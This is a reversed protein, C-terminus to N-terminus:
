CTRQEKLEITLSKVFRANYKFAPSLDPEKITTLKGDQLAVEFGIGLRDIVNQVVSDNTIDGVGLPTFCDIQLLTRNSTVPMIKVVYYSSAPVRKHDDSKSHNPFFVPHDLKASLQEYLKLRTQVQM